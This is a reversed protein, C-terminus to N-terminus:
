GACCSLKSVDQTFTQATLKIGEVETLYPFLTAALQEVTLGARHSVIQAGRLRGEGDAVLTM